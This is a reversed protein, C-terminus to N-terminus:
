LISARPFTKVLSLLVACATTLTLLSFLSFQYPKGGM